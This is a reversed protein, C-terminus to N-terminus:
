VEVEGPFKTGAPLFVFGDIEKESDLVRVKARVVVVGTPVWTGFMPYAGTYRLVEEKKEIAVGFFTKCGFEVVKADYDAAAVEAGNVIATEYAVLKTVADRTKCVFGNNVYLPAGFASAGAFFTLSAFTAFLTKFM